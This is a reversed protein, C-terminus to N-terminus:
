LNKKILELFKDRETQKGGTAGAFWIKINDIGDKGPIAIDIAPCGLKSSINIGRIIKFPIESFPTGISKESGGFFSIQANCAIIRKNTLYIHSPKADFISGERKTQESGFLGGVINTKGFSTGFGTGINVYGVGAYFCREAEGIIKEGKQLIFTLEASKKVQVKKNEEGKQKVEGEEIKKYCTDCYNKGDKSYGSLFSMKKNCVSCTAM